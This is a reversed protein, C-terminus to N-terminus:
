IYSIREMIESRRAVISHTCVKALIQVIVQVDNTRCEDDDDDDDRYEAFM